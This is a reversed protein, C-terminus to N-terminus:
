KIFRRNIFDKVMGLLTSHKYKTINKLFDWHLSKRYNRLGQQQKKIYEEINLRKQIFRNLNDFRYIEPTDLEEVVVPYLNSDIKIYDWSIENRILDLNIVATYKSPTWAMNFVFNGLSYFIYKDKYIEYGQMVHPHMGIILDFGLDIMWHAFRVQDINPYNIFEVGWHIYAIKYDSDLSKYEAEIESMEPLVWYLPQNGTEEKRLSFGTISVKKNQHEFTVSKQELSGFVGKSLSQLNSCMERYATEGHEMVHNNAIGYYDIFGLNAISEPSILFCEKRYDTKNTNRAVVSEFNGIWIDDEHKSLKEFPNFGNSIKTGVGFGVDFNKDSFCIDGVFKLM